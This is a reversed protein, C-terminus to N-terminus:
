SALRTTAPTTATPPIEAIQREVGLRRGGHNIVPPEPADRGPGALDGRM